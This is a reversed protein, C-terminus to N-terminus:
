MSTDFLSAQGASTMARTADVRRAGAESYKTSQVGGWRASQYGSWAVGITAVALIVVAIVEFSRDIDRGRRTVADTRVDTQGGHTEPGQQDTV